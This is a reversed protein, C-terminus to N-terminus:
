TRRPGIMVVAADDALGEGHRAAVADIVEDPGVESGLDDLLRVLDDLGFQGCLDSTQRSELLGDTFLMLRDHPHLTLTRVAPEGLMPAGLILDHRVPLAAAGGARLVVPAPHGLCLTDVRGDPHLVVTLLSALFLDDEREAVLVEGLRRPLTLLPEDGMLLTRWAARLASGTAAAAPGHGTVDGIVAAVRGDALTVVDYFDGGLAMRDDGPRYGVRVQWACHDLRLTPFLAAQVARSLQDREMLSQRERRELERRERLDTVTFMTRLPQVSYTGITLLVPLRAGDKRVYEKEFTARGTAVLEEVARADVEAWDPPTLGRWDLGGEPLEDYGLMDLLARNAATIHSDTGEGVGLAGAESLRALRRESTELDRRARREAADVRLRELTSAALEGVTGLFRRDHDLLRRPGKYHAYLAGFPPQGAEDGVVLPVVAVSPWGMAVVDDRMLPFRDWAHPTDLWCAEGSAVSWGVPTSGDVALVDYKQRRVPDLAEGQDIRAIGSGDPTVLHLGAEGAGTLDVVTQAIVTAVASEDHLINLHAAVRLLASERATSQEERDLAVVRGVSGAVRVALARLYSLDENGPMRAVDWAVGLVGIPQEKVVLPLTVSAEVRNAAASEAGAPWRADHEARSGLVLERGTTFVEGSPSDFNVPVRLYRSVAAPDVGVGVTELEELSNDYTCLLLTTAGLEEACLDRTATAIDAVTRANSLSVGLDRLRDARRRQVIEESVDEFIVAVGAVYPDGADGPLRVPSFTVRASRTAAVHEVWVDEWTQVVLEGRLAREFLPALQPWAQPIAEEVTRGVHAELPLDNSVALAENIAVYRLERDLVVMGRPVQAFAAALLEADGPQLRVYAV